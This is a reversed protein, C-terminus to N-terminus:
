EYLFIFRGGLILSAGPQGDERKQTGDTMGIMRWEPGGM